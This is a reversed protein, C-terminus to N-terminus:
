KERLERRWRAVARSSTRYHIRLEEATMRRQLIAFDNPRPRLKGGVKTAKWGRKRLHWLTSEAIGVLAAVTRQDHVRALLEARDCVVQSLARAM